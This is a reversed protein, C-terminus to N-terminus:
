NLKDPMLNFNSNFVHFSCMHFENLFHEKDLPCACQAWQAGVGGRWIRIPISSSVQCM